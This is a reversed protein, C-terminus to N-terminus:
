ARANTPLPSCPADRGFVPVYEWHGHASPWQTTWSCVAKPTRPSEVVSGYRPRLMRWGGEVDRCQIRESAPAPFAPQISYPVGYLINSSEAAHPRAAGASSISLQGQLAISGSVVDKLGFVASTSPEARLGSCVEDGLLSADSMLTDDSMASASM